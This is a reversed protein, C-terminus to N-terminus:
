IRGSLDSFANFFDFPIPHHGRWRQVYGQLCRRFTEEGLLHKLAVYAAAPKGYSNLVYSPYLLQHSPSLMPIEETPSTGTLYRGLYYMPYTKRADNLKFASTCAHYELFTAWGEDMWAYATENIGTLFPFYTHAIEHTTLTHTDDLTPQEVDNCMMPYEMQGFGNFITMKPYPYPIGPMQSSYYLITRRAIDLVLPYDDSTPKYATQISVRRKASSDVLASTGDWLFHNSGGFAFDTVEDATYHWLLTKGKPTIDGKKIDATTVIHVPTDSQYSNQLREVYTKNLVAEPNQLIGTAWIVYGEPVHITIDYNGFNNYFEVQENFPIQDWGQIDDYVSVRPFWYACFFSTSDVMGERHEIASRQLTFSWSIELQVKSGPLLASPLEIWTNTPDAAAAIAANDFAISKGNARIYNLVMGGTNFAPDTTGIHFAQPLHINQILKLNLGSLTDPSNNTYDITATGQVHGLQPNVQVDMKYTARNQWYRPGPQGKWTRTGNVVAQQFDRSVYFPSQAIGIPIFALGNFYILFFLFINTKPNM